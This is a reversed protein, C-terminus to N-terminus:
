VACWETSSVGNIYVGETKRAACLLAFVFAM